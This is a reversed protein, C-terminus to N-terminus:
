FIHYTKIHISYRFTIAHFHYYKMNRLCYEADANDLFILCTSSSKHIEQGLDPIKFYITQFIIIYTYLIVDIYVYTHYPM